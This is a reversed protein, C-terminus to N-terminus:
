NTQWWLDKKLQSIEEKAADLESCVKLLDKEAAAAKAEATAAREQSPVLADEAVKCRSRYGKNSIKLQEIEAELRQVKESTECRVRQERDCERRLLQSELRRITSQQETFQRRLKAFVERGKRDTVTDRPGKIM